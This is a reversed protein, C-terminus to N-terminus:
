SAVIQHTAEFMNRREPTVVVSLPPFGLIQSRITAAIKRREGRPPMMKTTTCRSSPGDTPKPPTSTEV